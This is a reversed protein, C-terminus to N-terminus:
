VLAAPERTLFHLHKEIDDIGVPRPLYVQLLELVKSLGKGGEISAVDHVIAFGLTVQRKYVDSAASSSSLPSKRQGRSKSFFDRAGGGHGHAGLRWRDRIGM